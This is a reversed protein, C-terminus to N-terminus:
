CHLHAGMTGISCHHTDMCQYQTGADWILRIIRIGAIETFPAIAAAQTRQGYHDDGYRDRLPQNCLLMTHQNAHSHENTNYQGVATVQWHAQANGNAYAGRRM